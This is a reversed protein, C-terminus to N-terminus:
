AAKRMASSGYFTDYVEGTIWLRHLLVALKRALAVVARREANKGGRQALRLGFRKLECDPGLPGLIYRVCNILLRRLYKNGAKTIRLQKDTAGSQDRKPTLGLFAGVHRSKYFRNPEELTLVYALATVPGVGSVQRLCGTEPYREKSIQEIQRDYQRIKKTLQEIQGIVPLLAGMLLAPISEPARKYFSESSCKSIRTGVSKVSGRVHNVLKTRSQVLIDRAKIMALDAQAQEGRHQVPYLLAPDFRAIRALMEADRLDSKNTGAWIVRLKRPNGILVVCGLAALMRSIWPSHTGAELAVTAGKYPMFFRQIARSTNTVQRVADVQGESDLVCIQHKRDGLDMGITVSNM